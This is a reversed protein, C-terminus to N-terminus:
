EDDPVERMIADLVAIEYKPIYITGAVSLAVDNVQPLLLSNLSGLCAILNRVETWVAFYRASVSNMSFGSQAQYTSLFQSWGGIQELFPKIMVLDEVPDGIHSFEWDLLAALRDDKMLMNHFGIDGHVRCAPRDALDDLHAELWALGVSLGPHPQRERDLVRRRLDAIDVRLVERVDTSKMATSSHLRAVVGALEDAWASRKAADAPLMQNAPTGAIYGVAMFAAAFPRTDAEVWLPAPTPVGLAHAEKLVEFEAAVSSGTPLGYGDKRIVITKEGEGENLRVLYTEKSYGGMLRRVSDVSTLKGPFRKRLYEQLLPATIYIAGGQPSGTQDGRGGQYTSRTGAGVTPDMPEHYAVLFERLKRTLGPDDAISAASSEICEVLESGIGARWGSQWRRMPAAGVARFSERLSTALEHEKARVQELQTAQYAGRAMQYGLATVAMHAETLFDGSLGGSRVLRNLLDRTAALVKNLTEDVKWNGWSYEAHYPAPVGSV